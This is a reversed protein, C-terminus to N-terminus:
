LLAFSSSSPLQHEIPHNPLLLLPHSKKGLVEKEGNKVLGGALMIKLEVRCSVFAVTKASLEPKGAKNADSQDYDFDKKPFYQM